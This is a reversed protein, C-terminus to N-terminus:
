LIFESSFPPNSSTKSGKSFEDANKSIKRFSEKNTSPKKFNTTKTSREFIDRQTSTKGYEGLNTSWKEFGLFSQENSHSVFESTAFNDFYSVNDSTKQRVNKHSDLTIKAERHTQFHYFNCLCM